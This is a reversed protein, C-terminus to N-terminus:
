YALIDTTFDGVLRIECLKVGEFEQLSVAIYSSDTPIDTPITLIKSPDAASSFTITATGKVVNAEIEIDLKVIGDKDYPSSIYTQEKYNGIGAGDVASGARFEKAVDATKETDTQFQIVAGKRSSSKLLEISGTFVTTNEADLHLKAFTGPDITGPTTSTDGGAPSCASIILIIAILSLATILKKM